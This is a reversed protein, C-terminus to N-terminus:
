DIETMLSDLPLWLVDGGSTAPWLSMTDLWYAGTRLWLETADQPREFRHLQVFVDDKALSMPWVDLGDATGVALGDARILHALLSFNRTVAIDTVRWWTAVDLHAEDVVATAGLFTLPGAM